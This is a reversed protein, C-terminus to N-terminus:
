LYGRRSHGSSTAPHQPGSITARAPACAMTTSAVGAPIEPATRSRGKWTLTSPVDLGATVGSWAMADHGDRSSPRNAPAIPERTAYGPRGRRPTRGTADIVASAGAM